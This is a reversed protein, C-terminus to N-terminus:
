PAGVAQDLAVIRKCAAIVNVAADPQALIGRCAAVLTVRTEEFRTQMTACGALSALALTLALRTM